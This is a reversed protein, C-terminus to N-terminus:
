LNVFQQDNDNTGFFPDRVQPVDNLSEINNRLDVMATHAEKQYGQIVEQRAASQATLSERYMVKYPFMEVPLTMYADELTKYVIIRRCLRINVRDINDLDNETQALIAEQYTDYLDQGLLACVHQEQHTLMFPVMRYYLQGSDEINHVDDFIDTNYVFLNRATKYTNSEIWTPIKNRDLLAILQDLAQYSSKALMANSRDIQWEWPTTQHETKNMKRGANTHELDNNKAFNKYAIFLIALQALNLIEPMIKKQEAALNTDPTGSEYYAQIFDYTEQGIYKIFYPTRLKIYTRLNSFKVNADIFGLLAKVEKQGQEEGAKEKNFLIEM